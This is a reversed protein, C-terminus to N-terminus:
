LPHAIVVVVVVVSASTAKGDRTGHISNKKKVIYM